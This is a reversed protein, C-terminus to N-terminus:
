NYTAFTCPDDQCDTWSLILKKSEMYIHYDQFEETVYLMNEMYTHRDSEDLTDKFISYGLDLYDGVSKPGNDYHLASIVHKNENLTIIHWHTM